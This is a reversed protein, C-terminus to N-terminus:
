GGCFWHRGIMEGERAMCWRKFRKDTATVPNLFYLYDNIPKEAFLAERTVALIDGDPLVDACLGDFGKHCSAAVSIGWREARNRIVAAVNRQGDVGEGRAEGWVTMAAYHLDIAGISYLTPSQAEELCTEVFHWDSRREGRDATQVTKYTCLITLAVLTCKKIM